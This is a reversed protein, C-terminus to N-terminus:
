GGAPVLDLVLLIPLHDSFGASAATSWPTPDGAGNMLFPEDVVSFARYALGAGDVLGPSLLFGDLRSREGRYSYSYGGSEGWPSFLVPEGALPLADRARTAVLLRPLDRWAAS